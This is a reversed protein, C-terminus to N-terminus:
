TFIHALDIRNPKRTGDKALNAKWARHDNCMVKRIVHIKKIFLVLKAVFVDNVMIVYIDFIGREKFKAFNEIYGPIQASCTGSFAGPM